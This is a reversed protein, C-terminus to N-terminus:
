ELIKRNVEQLPFQGRASSNSGSSSLAMNETQIDFDFSKSVKRNLEKGLHIKKEKFVPKATFNFEKEKL